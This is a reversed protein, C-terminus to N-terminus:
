CYQATSYVIDGDVITEIRIDPSSIHSHDIAIPKTRDLIDRLDSAIGKGTLKVLAEKRTWLKTFELDSRKVQRLTKATETSVAFTTPETTKTSVATETSVAAETTEATKTSVAFTTPEAANEEDAKIVTEYEEENLVKRGLSERFTRITEIDVGVPRDSVACAVANKCHSINFHINPCDRLVPKGGEEYDFIPPETIGYEERLADRLLLYAAISQRKVGEHTIKAVVERRQESLRGMAEDIDILDIHKDIYLRM